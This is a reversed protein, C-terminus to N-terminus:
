AAKAAVPSITFTVAWQSGEAPVATQTVAVLGKDASATASNPSGPVAQFNFFIIDVPSGSMDFLEVAVVGNIGTGSDGIAVWASAQGAAIGEPNQLFAGNECGVPSAIVLQDPTENNVTLIVSYAPVVVTSTSM